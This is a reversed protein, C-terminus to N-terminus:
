RKLNSIIPYKKDIQEKDMLYKSFEGKEINDYINRLKDTTLDSNRYIKGSTKQKIPIIKGRFYLKLIEPLQTGARKIVKNGADHLNDDKSLNPRLQHLIKGSDVKKEALHITAGLCQPQGYLLPFLNTASGKYYPSLGLHLNIVKNPFAKLIFDKIISTGFLVIIDPDNEKLLELTLETNVEKYQLKIQLIDEPFGMNGFFKEESASRSKFHNKIFRADTENLEETNEITASKEETIILQLDTGSALCQSIYKHRLSNSTLLVTRMPTGNQLYATKSFVKEKLYIQKEGLFTMVTM